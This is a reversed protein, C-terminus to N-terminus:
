ISERKGMKGGCVVSYLELCVLVLHFMSVNVVSANYVFTNLFNDHLLIVSM